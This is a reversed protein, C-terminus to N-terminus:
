DYGVTTLVLNLSGTDAAQNYAPFALKVYDARATDEM